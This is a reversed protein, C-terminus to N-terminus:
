AVNPIPADTDHRLLRDLGIRGHNAAWRNAISPAPIRRPVTDCEDASPREAPGAAQIRWPTVSVHGANRHLETRRDGFSRRRGSSRASCRSVPPGGGPKGASPSWAASPWRPSSSGASWRFGAQLDPHPYGAVAALGSGVGYWATLNLPV